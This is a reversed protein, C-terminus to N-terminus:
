EPQWQKYIQKALVILVPMFLGYFGFLKLGIYVAALNALPHLGIQKGVIKPELLNHILTVVLYITALGVALSYQGKLLCGLAWPILVCGAGFVPLADILAIFFASLLAYDVGVVLFGITLEGFTIALLIGLARLYKGLTAMASGRTRRLRAAWRAPLHAKFFARIKRDDSSFFYTAVLLTVLFLLINPLSAATSSAFSVLKGFLEKPITIGEDILSEITTLIMNRIEPSMREFVGGCFRTLSNLAQGFLTATDPLNSLLQYIERLIRSVIAYCGAALGCFALLTCLFSALPRPLRLRKECLSVPRDILRAILFAILFPAIWGLLYRFFLWLALLGAAAYLPYVLLRLRGSAPM